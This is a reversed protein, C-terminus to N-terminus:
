EPQFNIALQGLLEPLAKKRLIAALGLKKLGPQELANVIYHELENGTAIFYGPAHNSCTSAIPMPRGYKGRRLDTILKRVLRTDNIRNNWPKGTVVTYLDGMGIANVEGIHHTMEQVLRSIFIQRERDEAQRKEEARSM